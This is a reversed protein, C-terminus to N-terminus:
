GEGAAAAEAPVPESAALVLAIGNMFAAVNAPPWEALQEIDAKISVEVHAGQTSKPISMARKM